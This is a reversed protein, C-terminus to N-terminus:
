QDEGTRAVTAEVPEDKRRDRRRLVGRGSEYQQAAISATREPRLPGRNYIFGMANVGVLGLRKQVEALPQIPTGPSTVVVVGDLLRMLPTAYAVNLVPPLDVVVVDYEDRLDTFLDSIEVSDFRSRLREPQTGALLLDFTDTSSVQIPQVVDAPHREEGSLLESLGPEEPHPGFGFLLSMVQGELDADLALVRRHQRGFAAALNSAMTTKGEGVGASIVGFITGRGPPMAVALASAAINIAESAFSRPGEVVPLQTGLREHRFDPVESLLPLGLENMVDDASEVTRPTRLELLYALVAGLIAGLVLGVLGLRASGLGAAVDAETAPSQLVVNDTAVAQEIALEERQIRLSAVREQTENRRQVIEAIDEQQIETTRVREIAELQSLLDRVRAASEDSAAGGALLTEGADALEAVIRDYQDILQDREPAESLAVTLEGEIDALEVLAAAIAADASELAGSTSESADTDLREQYATVIANAGILALEESPAAYTVEIVSSDPFGRVTRNQAILDADFQVLFEDSTQELSEISAGETQQTVTGDTGIVVVDAGVAAVTDAESQAAIQDNFGLLIFRENVGLPAIRGPPALPLVAADRVVPRLGRAVDVSFSGGDVTVGGDENATVGSPLEADTFSEIAVGEPTVVIPTQDTRAVVILGDSRMITADSAGVFVQRGQADLVPSGDGALVTTDESVVPTGAVSTALEDDSSKTLIGRDDEITISGDIGVLVPNDAGVSVASTSRQRLAQQHETTALEAAATAITDLDFIAVQEAVYREPAFVIANAETARPDEVVITATANYADAGLGSFWVGAALGTLAVLAVLLPRRAVAAPITVDHHDAEAMQKGDSVITLRGTGM